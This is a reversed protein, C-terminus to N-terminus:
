RCATKSVDLSMRQHSVRGVTGINAGGYRDGHAIRSTDTGFESGLEKRQVLHPLRRLEYHEAVPADELHSGLYGTNGEIEFDDLTHLSERVPRIPGDHDIEAVKSGILYGRRRRSEGAAPERGLIKTTGQEEGVFPPAPATNKVGKL